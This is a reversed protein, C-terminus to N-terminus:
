KRPDILLEFGPLLKTEYTTGYPFATVAWSKGRRRHVLLTPEEAYQSGNLVWYERISPVTHYLEPNRSLDKAMDGGVLVEIVITPSIDQWHLKGIDTQTPFSSYIAIDPEPITPRTRKPLFVRGRIAVYAVIDPHQEMYRNLKGHLWSELFNESLNPAPAVYLRGDILEYRFGNEFEADDFESLSLRRGLDLPGLHLRQQVSAMIPSELVSM